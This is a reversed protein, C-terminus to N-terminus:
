KIKLFISNSKELFKMECDETVSLITLDVPLESKSNLTYHLINANDILQESYVSYILLIDIDNPTKESYLVSGFLYISDFSNFLDMNRIILNSAYNKASYIKLTNM